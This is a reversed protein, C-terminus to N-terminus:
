VMRNFLEPHALSVGHGVNQIVVGKSGSNVLIKSKSKSFEKSITFSMNEELIDILTNANM